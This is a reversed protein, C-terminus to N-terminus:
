KFTVLKYRTSSYLQMLDDLLNEVLTSGHAIKARHTDLWELEDDLCVAIDTTQMEARGVAGIQGFLGMYAEVIGDIKDILGDYLEGLAVHASYSTTKWHSVHAHDRLAFVRAVLQEIM